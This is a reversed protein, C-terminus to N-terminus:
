AEEIEKNSWLSEEIPTGDERRLAIFICPGSSWPCAQVYEYVVSGDKLTHKYLPYIDGLEGFMGEVSDYEEEWPHTIHKTKCHPCGCYGKTTARNKSIFLDAAESLGMFQTTRM